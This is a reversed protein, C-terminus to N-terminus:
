CKCSCDDDKCKGDELEKFMDDMARNMADVVREHFIKTSEIGKVKARMSCASCILTASMSALEFPTFNEVSTIALISNGMAEVKKDDSAMAELFLEFYTELEKKEDENVEEDDFFEKAMEKIMDEM